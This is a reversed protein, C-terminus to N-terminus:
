SHKKGAIFLLSYALSMYTQVLPASGSYNHDSSFHVVWQRLTNVDVTQDGYVIVLTL